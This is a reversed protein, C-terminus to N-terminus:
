GAPTVEYLEACYAFLAVDDESAACQREMGVAEEDAM